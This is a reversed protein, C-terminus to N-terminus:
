STMETLVEQRSAEKDANNNVLHEPGCRNFGTAILAQQDGPYIEDGAIQERVFRDYPKGANFSNVVYDRYRWAHVRERDAEYGNTDAYRAVDLWRLAWREGYHPSALLRDVVKGYANPSKDALFRDIESPTPPLGTLDFTIRRLLKERSLPPSPFLKKSKQAALLFADIPTHVWASGSAPVEAQVPKQFAWWNRRAVVSSADKDVAALCVLATFILVMRGPAM